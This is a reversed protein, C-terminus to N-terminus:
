DSTRLIIWAAMSSYSSSKIITSFRFILHNPWIEVDEPQAFVMRYFLTFPFLLCFFLHSSLIFSQVHITNSQAFVPSPLLLNNYLRRHHVLSRELNYFLISYFLVSYLLNASVALYGFVSNLSLYLLYLIMM